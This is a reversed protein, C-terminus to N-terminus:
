QRKVRRADGYRREYLERNLEKAAEVMDPYPIDTISVFGVNYNEGDYARGTLPSDIYQFWHAGVFYPNDIVSKMYDRFMRGRDRQDTAAILGPHFLGTDSTAGMHFEGIISPMDVDELFEWDEDRLGEKYFNYSMVDTYKQAAGVVEPNMGWHAMRVGMYLHNPLVESLSESVVRFYEDAYTSLLTSFDAKVAETVEEAAAQKAFTSWSNFDAEWAANLAAISNYKAQLVEVFAAKTPCEAADRKLTHIVIGYHGEFSGLRGWNKENDIFVGVCWPSGQVDRAIAEVTVKARRVFEPDFPDPLPSWYDDGSSVTKFQGIIWGNAFYPIKDNRFFSADTWNGMSTFGWDLMRAVTVDRWTDMYSGPGTEGYRRELNARYFSFSEGHPVPGTHVSRKYNYHKALPHDYPPLWQFMKHRTESAIFRSKRAEASTTMFDKSDEPTVDEPNIERISPYEFDVGTMTTTNAMRANAIGTAFYLYGAPDVLAWKDGVKETRFFGTALLQPGDRWGGYKSRDSIPKVDALSAVEANAKAKLEADSHVKTPFESHANQGFQDCIGSLFGPDPKPNELLRVNGIQITRDHLITDAYVSVKAVQSLDLQKAGWLWVLKTWGYDFAAPDSRMGSDIQLQSGKLVIYYTQLESNAPVSASRVQSAGHKDRLEFYLHVSRKGPNAIDFALSFDQWNTWDWANAPAFAVGSIKSDTNIAVEIALKSGAATETPVVTLKSNVAKALQPIQDAHIAFLAIEEGTAANGICILTMLLGLSICRRVTQRLDLRDSTLM